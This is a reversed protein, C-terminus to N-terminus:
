ADRKIENPIINGIKGTKKTKIGSEKRYWASTEPRYRIEINLYKEAAKIFDRTNCTSKEYWLRHRNMWEKPILVDTVVGSSAPVIYEKDNKRVVYHLQMSGEKELMYGSRTTHAVLPITREEILECQEFPVFWTNDVSIAGNFLVYKTM